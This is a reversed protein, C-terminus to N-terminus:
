TRMRRMTARKRTCAAILRPMSGSVEAMGIRVEMPSKRPVKKRIPMKAQSRDTPSVEAIAGLMIADSSTAGTPLNSAVKAEEEEEKVVGVVM